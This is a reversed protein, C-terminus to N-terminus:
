ARHSVVWLMGYGAAAYHLAACARRLLSSVPLSAGPEAPVALLADLAGDGLENRAAGGGSAELHARLVAAQEAALEAIRRVAASAAEHAGVLDRRAALWRALAEDQVALGAAWENVAAQQADAM